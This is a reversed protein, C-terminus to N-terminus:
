HNDAILILEWMRAQTHTHAFERILYWTPTTKLLLYAVDHISSGALCLCTGLRGFCCLVCRSHVALLVVGESEFARKHRGTATASGRPLSKEGAGLVGEELEGSRQGKYRALM